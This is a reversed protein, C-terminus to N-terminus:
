ADTYRIIGIGCDKLYAKGMGDRYDDIYIVMSIGSQAIMKACALCPSMTCYMTAGDIRVGTRAAWSIANAEAHQTRICGKTEPDILCGEDICHELGPPSGVYGMSVIRNERVIISGARGGRNCTGRWSVLRTMSIFLEHRTLRDSGLESGPTSILKQILSKVM